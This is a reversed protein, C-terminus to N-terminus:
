ENFFSGRLPQCQERRPKKQMAVGDVIATYRLELKPKKTRPNTVNVLQPETNNAEGRWTHRFWTWGFKRIQVCDEASVKMCESQGAGNILVAAQQTPWPYDNVFGKYEGVRSLYMAEIEHYSERNWDTPPVPHSPTSRPPFILRLASPVTHRPHPLPHLASLELPLTDDIITTIIM